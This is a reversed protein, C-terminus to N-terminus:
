SVATLNPEKKDFVNAKLNPDNGLWKLVDFQRVESTSFIDTLIDNIQGAKFLPSSQLDTPFQLQQERQESM